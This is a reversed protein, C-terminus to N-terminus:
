GGWQLVEFPTDTKKSQRILAGMAVALSQRLDTPTPIEDNFYRRWSKLCSNM